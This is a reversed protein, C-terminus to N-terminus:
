MYLSSSPRMPNDEHRWEIYIYIYINFHRYQERGYKWHKNKRRKFSKSVKWFDKKLANRQKELLISNLNEYIPLVNPFFTENNRKYM